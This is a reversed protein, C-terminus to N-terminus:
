REARLGRVHAILAAIGKETIEAGFAPMLGRGKAIVEHLQGDSRANQFAESAFDPIQAGPPRASGDGRGDQGHCSACRMSFLAAAARAGPDGSEQVIGQGEPMVAPPPQHDEPRWERLESAGKGCALLSALTLLLVAHLQHMCVDAPPKLGDAREACARFFRLKRV